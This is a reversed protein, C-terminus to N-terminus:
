CVTGSLSDGSVVAIFFPVLVVELLAFLFVCTQDDGDDLTVGVSRM